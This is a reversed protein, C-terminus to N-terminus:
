KGAAMPQDKIQQALTRGPVYEAIAIAGGEPIEVGPGIGRGEGARIMDLLGALHRHQLGRAAEFNAIDSAPVAAAIVRRGSEVELALWRRAGNPSQLHSQLTYRESVLTSSQAM